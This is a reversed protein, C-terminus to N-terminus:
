RIALFNDLAEVAVPPWRRIQQVWALDKYRRDLGVAAFWHSEAEGRQGTQWLAATLAARMDAFQPYKRILNRMQRIAAPLDGTQWLALTYNARAAAYAPELDVAHQYDAIAAQWQRAGAEANGRNNYAVPDQANLSLAQNYDAIAADWDELREFVVGRNLYPDPLDPALAVSQNYDELAAQLKNQSMRANGRNSWSAPNEPFLAIAQTWIDEALVFNGTQTAGLAAQYLSELDALSEETVTEARPFDSIEAAAAPPLWGLCCVLTLAAIAIKRGLWRYVRRVMANQTM